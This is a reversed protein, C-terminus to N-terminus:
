SSRRVVNTQQPVVVKPLSKAVLRSVVPLPFRWEVFGEMAPPLRRYLLEYFNLEGLDGTFAQVYKTSLHGSVETRQGHKLLIRRLAFTEKLELTAPALDQRFCCSCTHFTRKEITLLGSFTSALADM